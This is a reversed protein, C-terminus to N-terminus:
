RGGSARTRKWETFYADFDGRACQDTRDEVTENAVADFAKKRAEMPANFKALEAKTFSPDQIRRENYQQESLPEIGYNPHEFLYRLFRGETFYETGELAGFSLDRFSAGYGEMLRGFKAGKEQTSRDSRIRSRLLFRYLSSTPITTFVMGVELRKVALLNVASKSGAEALREYFPIIQFDVEPADFAANVYNEIEADPYKAEAAAVASLFAFAGNDTHAPTTKKLFQLIKEFREPNQWAAFAFQAYLLPEILSEPGGLKALMESSRNESHFSNMLASLESESKEKFMQAFLLNWNGRNVRYDLLVTALCLDDEKWIHNVLLQFAAPDNAGDFVNDVAAELAKEEPTLTKSQQSSGTPTIGTSKRYNLHSSNKEPAPVQRNPNRFLFLGSGVAFAAVLALLFIKFARDPM